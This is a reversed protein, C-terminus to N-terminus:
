CGSHIEPFQACASIVESGIELIHDAGHDDTIRLVEGVWDDNHREIGYDAGLTELSLTRTERAALCL